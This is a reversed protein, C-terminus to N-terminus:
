IKIMGIRHQQAFLQAPFRLTVHLYEHLYWGIGTCFRRHVNSNVKSELCQSRGLPRSGVTQWKISAPWSPITNIQDPRPPGGARPSLKGRVAFARNVLKSYSQHYDTGNKCIVSCWVSVTGTQAHMDEGTHLFVLLPIVPAEM